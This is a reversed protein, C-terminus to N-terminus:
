RKKGTVELKRCASVWDDANKREVHGFWRLRGRSVMSSVSAIGLRKRLEESSKKDRLTVGCMWRVMMRETRELRQMDGVKVAWTENGFVRFM